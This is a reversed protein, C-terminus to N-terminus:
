TCPLRTLRLSPETRRDEDKNSLSPLTINTRAVSSREALPSDFIINGLPMNVSVDDSEEPFPLLIVIEALLISTISPACIEAPVCPEPFAPSIM